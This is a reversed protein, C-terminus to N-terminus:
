WQISDHHFSIPRQRVQRREVVTFKDRLDISESAPPRLIYGAPEDPTAPEFRFLVIGTPAQASFRFIMEGFDRDFTLVLQEEAVARALVEYDSAGPADQISSAVDHVAMQLRMVSPVPFNEYALFKM